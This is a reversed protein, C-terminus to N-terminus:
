HNEIKWNTDAVTILYETGTITSGNMYWVANAGNLYNRWLIDVNGDLNFDGAGEIRWNVDTITLLYASGALTSGNMYWVANAGNLYNRWLIDVNGDLNFDGTGGIEWQLNTVTALYITNIYTSGNMYWLANKGTVNHRWLIDLNGDGNFDGTGEIRWNVDTITALYAAGAIISGDMYWIANAGTGYHRWLIDVRGDLNFDGTAGIKWNTDTIKTLYTAGTVSLAQVQAEFANPRMLEQMDRTTGIEGTAIADKYIQMVSHDYQSGAGLINHFVRDDKYLLEGAERVDQYIQTSEPSQNMPMAESYIQNFGATTGSYRLYWLANAGSGNHRWIIDGQGDFDFDNKEIPVKIHAVFADYVGNHTLDPGIREPFTTETSQTYGTVYASYDKGLAIGYGEDSASGGIYGCYSLGTGSSKVKAVFVDSNGNHTLDPGIVVPFTAESSYTYGCIYAYGHSDVSIGQGSDESIGGIYGCYVLGTGDSKVKAVYADELLAGGNHTLDPGVKVPFTAETSFTMGTIYACGSSDLAIARGDDYDIGGIYGCYLLAAGSGNVKALFADYNGNHTLDPGVTVPFSTEHSHTDGTIYANGDGDVVIGAGEEVSSGGIYGCYILGTGDPKIKAVYADMLGNYTLDPGVKVPFAAEASETRGTIYASGSTDVAIGRGWDLKTGGIFGCYVLGTGASNVKAVFADGDGNYTLDPGVTVPFNQTESSTTSGTVYVNGSSDVAIGEGEDGWDGGIYGCYILGTGTSNVKAVFVDSPGNQTLDPGVTVPFTAETSEVRGTIYANGTSDVAIGEGRDTSSGGIYGCYILLMPDLILPQSQDYEAVRFGYSYRGEEERNLDYEIGVEVRKGEARQYAVLQGDAFGGVPTELELEGEENVVVGTVGRYAMRIRGPDAGPHVVFEYKLSGEAGKYVLDVGPWLNAYVVKSYTSIGTHWEEAGGKFYSIVAGAEEEGRPSVDRDAGVFDLKVVWRKLAEEEGKNKGALVFTVGGKTFYFQKDKGTIYYAVRRDMQGENAIFYVPMRGFDRNVGLNQSVQSPTEQLPTTTSDTEWSGKKGGATIWLGLILVAAFFVRGKKM